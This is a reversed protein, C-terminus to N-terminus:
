ASTTRAKLFGVTVISGEAAATQAAAIAALFADPNEIHHDAPLILVLDDPACVLCAAAVAPASNRGFPELILDAEPAQQRLLREHRQSGVILTPEINLGHNNGGKLRSSTLAIMTEAATLSQFQKPREPTSLPWLRTGSGGALIIAKM